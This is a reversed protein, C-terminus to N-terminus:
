RVQTKREKPFLHWIATGGVVMLQIQGANQPEVEKLDKIFAVATAELEQLTPQYGNRRELTRADLGSFPNSFVVQCLIAVLLFRLM